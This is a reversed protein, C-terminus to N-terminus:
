GFTIKRSLLQNRIAQDQIAFDYLEQNYQHIDDLYMKLDSFFYSIIDQKPILSDFYLKMIGVSNNFLEQFDIKLRPFDSTINDYYYEMINLCRVLPHPHSNEKTYFGIKSISYKPELQNIVGFYFLSKTIIMSACGVFLLCKLKAENKEKLKSYIGFVYKLVEYSAMRDADFEWAHNKLDFGKMELNEHLLYGERINPDYNMQLIHEFEHNFTFKISCDLIFKSFDFDSDEELDSYAVSLNPDNIISTLLIKEFYKKDLKRKLLIPYGNTIGIINYDKRKSAFANCTDNSKIYFYYNNINFLSAYNEFLKQFSNEFYAYVRSIEPDIDQYEFVDEIVKNNVLLEKKM